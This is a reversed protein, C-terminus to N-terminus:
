CVEDGTNPLSHVKTCQVQSTLLPCLCTTKSLPFLSLHRQPTVMTTGVDLSFQPLHCAELELICFPILLHYRM